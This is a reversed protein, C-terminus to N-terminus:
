KSAIEVWETPQAFELLVAQLEIEVKKEGTTFDHKVTITKVWYLFGDLRVPKEATMANNFEVATEVNTIHKM